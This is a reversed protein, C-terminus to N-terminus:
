NKYINKVRGTISQQSHIHVDNRIYFYKFYCCLLNRDLNRKEFPALNIVLSFENLVSCLGFQFRNFLIDSLYPKIAGLLTEEKM